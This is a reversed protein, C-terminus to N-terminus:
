LLWGSGPYHRIFDVVFMSSLNTTNPVDATLFDMGMWALSAIVPGAVATTQPVAQHVGGVGTAFFRYQDTASYYMGRADRSTLIDGSAIVSDTTDGRGWREFQNGLSNQIMAFTSLTVAAGTDPLGANNLWVRAACFTNPLAIGATVESRIYIHGATSPTFARYVICRKNRPFQILLFSGQIISNYQNNALSAAWPDITGLRTMTVADTVNRVTWGRLPLDATGGLFEDDYPSATSTRIAYPSVSAAVSSAGVFQGVQEQNVSMAVVM